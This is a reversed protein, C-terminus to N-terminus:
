VNATEKREASETSEDSSQNKAVSFWFTAGEGLESKIWAQGGLSRAAKMVIALGLGSGEKKKSLRRFIIFAKQHNAAAIGPGHDRVYFRHHRPADVCGVEISAGPNQCGYKLANGILNLFIQQVRSSITRIRPLSTAVVLRADAKTFQADLSLAVDAVLGAINVWEETESARAVRSLALVDNILAAMTKTARSVRKASDRADEVDDRELAEVIMSSFGQITVLPSKLDHSVTYLLQEMEETRNELQDIMRKQQTNDVISSLVFRGEPTEIPNLRIEVPFESGDKRRAFLEQGVGIARASSSVFFSKPANADGETFREPVLRDVLEGLMENRTYGFIREAEANVLVIRGSEDMMVMANPASEVAQEFRRQADRGTIDVVSSLVFRGRPTDIPNLGIEVPFETGNKHLGFTDQRAGMARAEPSEFFQDRVDPHGDHYRNPILLEITQGLMEERQYGFIRETEANVLVITGTNDVMVMANPASEVVVTSRHEAEEAKEQAARADAAINLAARRQRQLELDRAELTSTTLELAGQADSFQSVTRQLERNSALISGSKSTMLLFLALLLLDIIIGGALVILPQSSAVAARFSHSSQVHFNWTLGYLRVQHTEEYQPDPDYDVEGDVHENYLTEAGDDIRIGLHRGERSPSPSPAMLERVVFSAYVIGAFNTRRDEVSEHPGRYFPVFLFFGPTNRADQVLAIPGALQPTGTDRVRMVGGYRDAEHTMDLGVAAENGAAPEIYTIPFHEEAQTTPHVRFDPRLIRQEAVYSELGDSPVRRIVGIGTIAPYDRELRSPGAYTRWEELSVDGGMAQVASAGSWLALEYKRLREVVLEIVASAEQQFRALSQREVQRNSLHWAAITLLLSAGVAFWHFWRLPSPKSVESEKHENSQGAPSM